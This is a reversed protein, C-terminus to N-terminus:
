REDRTRRIDVGTRGVYVGPKRGSDNPFMKYEYCEAERQAMRSIFDLVNKITLVMWYLIIFAWMSWGMILGTAVVAAIVALAIILIDTLRRM